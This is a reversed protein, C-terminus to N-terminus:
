NTHFRGARAHRYVGQGIPRDNHGIPFLLLWGTINIGGIRLHPDIMNAPEIGAVTMLLVQRVQCPRIGLGSTTRTSTPYEFGRKRYFRSLVRSDFM